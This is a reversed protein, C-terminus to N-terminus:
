RHSEKFAQDLRALLKQFNDDTQADTVGYSIDLVVKKDRIAINQEQLFKAIDSIVKNAGPADTAPFVMLFVAGGYRGLIDQSRIRSKILEISKKLVLDGVLHGHQENLEKLNNIGCLVLSFKSGGDQYRKLLNKISALTVGRDIAGTLSDLQSRKELNLRSEELEEITSKLFLENTQHYGELGLSMDLSIIRNLFCIIKIKVGEEMADPLREIILEKLKTYAFEYLRPPLGIRNHVVGVQLRYEFYDPSRFNIGLNKLYDTQTSVMRTLQEGVKFYDHYDRHKQLYEYFAEVVEDLKSRIVSQHLMEAIEHDKESFELLELM